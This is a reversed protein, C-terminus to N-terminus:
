SLTMQQAPRLDAELAELVEDVSRVVTAGPRDAYRRAWDERMVLPELLFLRKGHELARTAQNRAGSIGSAEVVVTGIAMGSMTINRLPFSWKTPPADPGFQSVIAGGSDVIQRALAVHEKPYTRRIGTGVVAVTRGGADLAATHATGDIGLALGSLVTVGSAALERSLERAIDRGDNTARRTGVVAIARDDEPALTGRIFLFPPRNYILRLNAPYDDDLVTVMSVGEAALEEIQAGLEDLDADTVAAEGVSARLEPPEFGTWDGHVVREASGTIELLQSVLYWEARAHRVLALVAAQERANEQQGPQSM